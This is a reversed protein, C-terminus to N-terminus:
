LSANCIEPVSILDDLEVAEREERRRVTVSQRRCDNTRDGEIWKWEVCGKIMM